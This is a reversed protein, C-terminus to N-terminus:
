FNGEAVDKLIAKELTLDAVVRKLRANERELEKLRKAQNGKLGGYERKWRYYTVDTVGAEKCAQVLTKGEGMLVDIQRLKSVVQEPSFKKRAM